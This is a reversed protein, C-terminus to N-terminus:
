GNSKEGLVCYPYWDSALFVKYLKGQFDLLNVTKITKIGRKRLESVLKDKNWKPLYPDFKRYVEKWKPLRWGILMDILTSKAKNFAKIIGSSHPTEGDALLLSGGPKVVRVCEKIMREPHPLTWLVFRSIVADFLSDDFPLSEADGIIPTFSKYNSLKKTAIKLMSPSIDLGFVECGLELAIQSLFGTGAGVDLVKKPKIQSLTLRWFDKEKNHFVKMYREYAHANKQNWRENRMIEKIDM